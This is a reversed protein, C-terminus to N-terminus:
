ASKGEHVISQGMRPPKARSQPSYEGSPSERDGERRQDREDERSLFADIENRYYYGYFSRKMNVLERVCPRTMQFGLESLTDLEQLMMTVVPINGRDNSYVVSMSPAVQGVLYEVTEEPQAIQSVAESDIRGLRYLSSLARLGALLALQDFRGFRESFSDPMISLLFETRKEKSPTNDATDEYNDGLASATEVWFCRSSQDAAKRMIVREIEYTEESKEPFIRKLHAYRSLWTDFLTVDFKERTQNDAAGRVCGTINELFAVFAEHPMGADTDRVAAMRWIGSVLCIANIAASDFFRRHLPSLADATEQSTIRGGPVTDAFLGSAVWPGQTDGQLIRTCTEIEADTHGIKEYAFRIYFQILYSEASSSTAALADAFEEKRERDWITYHDVVADRLAYIMVAQQFFDRGPLERCLYSFCEESRQAIEKLAEITEKSFGAAQDLLLDVTETDAFHKSGSVALKALDAEGQFLEGHERTFRVNGRLRELILGRALSRGPETGYAALRDLIHRYMFSDRPNRIYDILAREIDADGFMVLRSVAAGRDQYQREWLLRNVVALTRERDGSMYLCSISVAISPVHRDSGQDNSIFDLVRPEFVTLLSEILEPTESGPHDRRGAPRAERQAGYAADIIAANRVIDGIAEITTIDWLPSMGLEIYIDDGSERVVTEGDVATFHVTTNEMRAGFHQSLASLAGCLTGIKENGPYAQRLNALREDPLDDPHLSVSGACIGEERLASQIEAPALTGSLVTFAAAKGARGHCPFDLTFGFERMLVVLDEFSLAKGASRERMEALSRDAGERLQIPRLNFLHATKPPLEVYLGNRILEPGTRLYAEGTLQDTLVYYTSNDASLGLQNGAYRLPITCSEEYEAHNSVIIAAKRDESEYYRAYALIASSDGPFVFLQGDHLVSGRAISLIERFIGRVREWPRGVSDLRYWKATARAFHGQLQEILVIPMGPVTAATLFHTKLNRAVSRPFQGYRTMYGPEDDHSVVSYARRMQGSIHEAMLYSRLEPIKNSNLLQFLYTQSIFDFGCRELVDFLWYAEAVFLAGPHIARASQILGEWLERPWLAGPDRKGSLNVDDWWTHFFGDTGDAVSAMACDARFGDVGEKLLTGTVDTLARRVHPNSVDLLAMDSWWEGRRKMNAETGHAILVWRGLKTSYHLFYGPNRSIIGSLADVLAVHDAEWNGLSDKDPLAMARKMSKLHAQEEYSIDKYAYWYKSGTQLSEDRLWVSDIATSHALLDLTIGMDLERAASILRKFAPWGGLNPNPETHDPISFASPSFDRNGGYYDRVVSIVRGSEDRDYHFHHLDDDKEGHTIKRSIASERFAGLLYIRRIGLGRLSRLEEAIEDFSGFLRANVTLLVPSAEEVSLTERYAETERPLKAECVRWLQESSYIRAQRAAATWEDSAGITDGASPSRRFSIPTRNDTYLTRDGAPLKSSDEGSPSGRHGDVRDPGQEFDSEHYARFNGARDGVVYLPDPKGGIVGIAEAFNEGSSDKPRKQIFADTVPAGEDTIPSSLVNMLIHAAKPSKVSLAALDKEAEKTWKAFINIVSEGIRKGRYEAHEIKIAINNIDWLGKKIETPLKIYNITGINIGGIYISYTRPTTPDDVRLTIKQYPSEPDINRLTVEKFHGEAHIYREIINGAGDVVFHRHGKTDMITTHFPGENPNESIFLEEGEIEGLQRLIEPVKEADLLRDPNFMGELLSGTLEEGSPSEREPKGTESREGTEGFLDFADSAVDVSLAELFPRLAPREREANGLRRWTEIPFYTNWLIDGPVLLIAEGDGINERIFRRQIQGLVEDIFKKQIRQIVRLTQPFDARNKLRYPLERVAVDNKGKGVKLAYFVESFIERSYRLAERLLDRREALLAAEIEEKFLSITLYIDCLARNIKTEGLMRVAERIYSEWLDKPYALGSALSFRNIEKSSQPRYRHLLRVIHAINAGCVGDRYAFLEERGKIGGRYFYPRITHSPDKGNLHDDILAKAYIPYPASIFRKGHGVKYQDCFICAGPCGAVPYFKTIRVTADNELLDQAGPHAAYEEPTLFIDKGNKIGEFILKEIVEVYTMGEKIENVDFGLNEPSLDRRETLKKLVFRGHDTLTRPRSHQDYDSLIRHLDKVPDRIVFRDNMKDASPSQREPKRHVTLPTRRELQNAPLSTKEKEREASPGIRKAMESGQVGGTPSKRKPQGIESRPGRVEPRQGTEARQTGRKAGQSSHATSDTIDEASSPSRRSEDRDITKIYQVFLPLSKTELGSGFIKSYEAYTKIRIEIPIPRLGERERIANMIKWGTRGHGEQLIMHLLGYTYNAIAAFEVPDEWDVGQSSYDEILHSLMPFVGASGRYRADANIWSVYDLMTRATIGKSYLRRSIMDKTTIRPSTREFPLRAFEIDSALIGTEEAHLSRIMEESIYGKDPGRERPLTDDSSPSRRRPKEAPLETFSPLPRLGTDRFSGLGWDAVGAREMCRKLTEIIPQDIECIPIDAGEDLFMDLLHFYMSGMNDANDAESFDDEKILYDYIMGFSNLRMVDDFGFSNYQYEVEKSFAYYMDYFQYVLFEEKTMADRWNMLDDLDHIFVREGDSYASANNQHTYHLAYKNDHLTRLARLNKINDFQGRTFYRETGGLIVFGLRKEEGYKNRFPKKAFIEGWGVPYKAIVKSNIRPDNRVDHTKVFENVAGRLTGGGQPSGARRRKYFFGEKDAAPDYATKGVGDHVAIEEDADFLVGKVQLQEIPYYLRQGGIERIPDDLDVYESREDERFSYNSTIVRIIKERDRDSLLDIIENNIRLTADRAGELVEPIRERSRDTMANAVALHPIEEEGSPSKRRDGNTGEPSAESRKARPRRDSNIKQEEQFSAVPTQRSKGGTPSERFNKEKTEPSGTRLSRHHASDFWTSPRVGSERDQASDQESGTSSDFSPSDGEGSPSARPRSSDEAEKLREEAEKLRKEVRSIETLTIWRKERCYRDVIAKIEDHRRARWWHHGEVKTLLSRARNYDGSYYAAEADNLLKVWEPDHAASSPLRKDLKVKTPGLNGCNKIAIQLPKQLKATDSITVWGRQRCYTDIQKVLDAENRSRGWHSDTLRILLNKATVLDGASIASDADQLLELRTEDGTALSLPLPDSTDSGSPSAREKQRRVVSSPRRVKEGSPSKRGPDRKAEGSDPIAALEKIDALLENLVYEDEFRNRYENLMVALKRLRGDPPQAEVIANLIRDRDKYPDVDHSYQLGPDTCAGIALLLTVSIAYADDRPLCLEKTSIGWANRRLLRNESCYRPKLMYKKKREDIETSGAITCTSDNDVSKVQEITTEDIGPIVMIGEWDLDGNVYGNREYLAPYGELVSVALDLCAKEKEEDPLKSIQKAYAEISVGPVFEFLLSRGRNGEFRELDVVAILRQLYPNDGESFADRYFQIQPEILISVAEEVNRTPAKLVYSRGQVLMGETPQTYEFRSLRIGTVPQEQNIIGRYSFKELFEEQNLVLLDSGSPSQRTDPTRAIRIEYGTDRRGDDTGAPSARSNRVNLDDRPTISAFGADQPTKYVFSAPQRGTPTSPYPDPSLAKPKPIKPDTSSEPDGDNGEGRFILADWATGFTDYVDDSFRVKVLPTGEIKIAYSREMPYREFFEFLNHPAERELEMFTQTEWVKSNTNIVCAIREDGVLEALEPAISLFVNFTILHEKSVGFEHGIVIMRFDPTEEIAKRFMSIQADLALEGEEGGPEEGYLIFEVEGELSRLMDYLARSNDSDEPENLTIRYGVTPHYAWEEPPIEGRIFRELNDRESEPFPLAVHTIAVNEKLRVIDGGIAPVSGDRISDGICVIRKGEDFLEELLQHPLAGESIRDFLEQMQSRDLKRTIDLNPPDGIRYGEPIDAAEEAVPDDRRFMLLISIGERLHAQLTEDDTNRFQTALTRITENLSVLPRKRLGGLIANIAIIKAETDGTKLRALHYELPPWETQKSIDNEGGSGSSDEGSSEGSPSGRLRQPKNEDVGTGPLSQSGESEIRPLTIDLRFFTTDKDDVDGAEICNVIPIGENNLTAHWTAGDIGRVYIDLCGGLMSVLYAAKALGNGYGGHAATLQLDRTEAVREYQFDKKTSVGPALLEMLKPRDFGERVLNNKFSMVVEQGSPETLVLRIVPREGAPPQEMGFFNGLVNKAGEDVLLGLAKQSTMPFVVPDSSSEVTFDINEPLIKEPLGFVELLIHPNQSRAIQHATNTMEVRKRTSKARANFVETIDVPGIDIGPAQPFLHELLYFAQQSLRYISHLRKIADREGYVNELAEVGTFGAGDKRLMYHYGIFGFFKEIGQLYWFVDRAFDRIDEPAQLENPALEHEIVHRYHELLTAARTLLDGDPMERIAKYIQKSIEPDSLQQIVEDTLGLTQMLGALSRLRSELKELVEAQSHWSGFDPANQIVAFEDITMLPPIEPLNGSPSQREPKGTEGKEHEASRTRRESGKARRSSQVRLGSSDDGGAPEIFQRVISGQPIDIEATVARVGKLIFLLHKIAKISAKDKERRARKLAGNLLPKVHPKLVPLEYSLYSNFSVDANKWVPYVYRLDHERAAPWERIVDLPDQRFIATFTLIHRMFRLDLSTLPWNGALKLSPATNVFIGYTNEDKLLGSEKDLLADDLVYDGELIFVVRSGARRTAALDQVAERMREIKMRYIEEGSYRQRILHEEYGSLYADMDFRRTSWGAESLEHEIRESFAMKGSTKPGSVLVFGGNGNEFRANIEGAIEGIERAHKQENRDILDQYARRRGLLNLEEITGPNLGLKGYGKYPGAWGFFRAIAFFVRLLPSRAIEANAIRALSLIYAARRLDVRYEAAIALITGSEAAIREELMKDVSFDGWYRGEINQLWEFYSVTVGGVNALVDPVVLIGRRKLIDDAAPTTPANALELVIGCLIENANEQTIQNETAAPIKIDTYITWFSRPDTKKTGTDTLFQRPVSDLSSWRGDAGRALVKDLAEIDIGNPNYLTCTADQLLTVRAGSRYFEWADYEGVNGTGQIGVTMERIEKRLVARASENLRASVPNHDFDAIGSFYKMITKFALFGGFGTAKTRGKSGGKGVPKGTIAALEIGELIGDKDESLLRMYEDLFPTKQPDSHPAIRKLAKQITADYIKNKATLVRLYEDMFWAMMRADTGKDPAPVDIFPGVAGKKTLARSFARIIRAKDNDTYDRKPVFVDGKGGGYPIGIVANKVSMLTALGAATAEAEEPTEGEGVLWRLGGKGAGRADNQLVRFGWLTVAEGDDLTVRFRVRTVRKAQLVKGRILWHLEMTEAAQAITHKAAELITVPSRSAESSSFGSPSARLKTPQSAPKSTRQGEESRPDRVESRSEGGAALPLAQLEEVAATEVRQRETTPSTETRNGGFRDAAKIIGEDPKELGKGRRYAFERKIAAILLRSEELLNEDISWAEVKEILMREVDDQTVRMSDGIERADKVMKAVFRRVFLSAFRKRFDKVGRREFLLRDEMEGNSPLGTEAVANLMEKENEEIYQSILKAMSYPTLAAKKAPLVDALVTNSCFVAPILIISIIRKVQTMVSKNSGFLGM